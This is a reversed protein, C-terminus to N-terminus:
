QTSMLIVVQRDRIVYFFEQNGTYGGFKNKVNVTFKGAYGCKNAEGCLPIPDYLFKYEASDPDVLRSEMEEEILTEYFYPYEGYVAIDGEERKPWSSIKSEPKPESSNSDIFGCKYLGFMAAGFVICGLIFTILGEKVNENM